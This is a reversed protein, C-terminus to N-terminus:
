RQTPGAEPSGDTNEQPNTCGLALRAVVSDAIVRSQDADLGREEALELVRQHVESLQASTLAPITVPDAPRRLLKRVSTKMGTIAANATATGFQQAAQSVALWVVPTALTAVEALGFSLPEGRRDYRQLRKVVAVDDLGALAEVLPLEAPACDAIVFRVVERVLLAQTAVTNPDANGDNM